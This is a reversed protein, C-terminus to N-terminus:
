AFYHVHMCESEEETVEGEDNEMVEEDREEEDIEEKNSQDSLEGEDKQMEVPKQAAKEDVQTAVKVREDWQPAVREKVESTVKLEPYFFMKTETEDGDDHQFHINCSDPIPACLFLQVIAM